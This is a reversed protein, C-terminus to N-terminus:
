RPAVAYVFKSISWPFNKFGYIEDTTFESQYDGDLYYIHAIGAGAFLKTCDGCPATTVYLVSGLTPIGLKACQIIVNLEAHITRRCHGDRMLCGSEDCHLGGPISGNYGTAVMHRGQVLVAGVHRRPCTARKSVAEAIEMFTDHFSPRTSLRHEVNVDVYPAADTMSQDTM